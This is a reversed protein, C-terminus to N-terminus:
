ARLMSELARRVKALLRSWLLSDKSRANAGRAAWQRVEPRSMIESRRSRMEEQVLKWAKRRHIKGRGLGACYFMQAALAPWMGGLRVNKGKGPKTKKLPLGAASFLLGCAMDEVLKCREYVSGDPALLVPWAQYHQIWRFSSPNVRAARHMAEVTEVTATIVGCDPCGEDGSCLPFAKVLSEAAQKIASALQYGASARESLSTSEDRAAHCLADIGAHTFFRLFDDPRGDCMELRERWNESALIMAAAKGGVALKRVDSKKSTNM